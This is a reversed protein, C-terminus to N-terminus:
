LDVFLFFSPLFHLSNIQSLFSSYTSWSLPIMITSLHALLSSFLLIFVRAPSQMLFSNGLLMSPFFSLTEISGLKKNKNRKTKTKAKKLFLSILLMCWNLLLSLSNKKSCPLFFIKLLTWAWPLDWCQAQDWLWLIMVQAWILLWVSLQSLWGPM